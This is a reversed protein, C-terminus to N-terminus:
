HRTIRILARGHATLEVRGDKIEVLSKRVLGMLAQQHAETQLYTQNDRVTRRYISLLLGLQFSTPEDSRMPQLRM